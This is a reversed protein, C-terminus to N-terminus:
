TQQLTPTGIVHEKKQKKPQKLRMNKGHNFSVKNLKTELPQVIDIYYWGSPITDPYTNNITWNDTPPKEMHKHTTELHAVKTKSQKIFFQKELVGWFCSQRGTHEFQAHPRVFKMKFWNAKLSHVFQFLSHFLNLIVM